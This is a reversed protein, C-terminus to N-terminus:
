SLDPIAHESGEQDTLRWSIDCDWWWGALRWVWCSVALAPWHCGRSFRLFVKRWLAPPTRIWGLNLILSFIASALFAISLPTWGRVRILRLSAGLLVVALIALLSAEVPIQVNLILNRYLESQPTLVFGAILATLFAALAVISLVAGKEWRIVRRIQRFLLFGIGILGAVALLILGWELIYALVPSLRDQLFYGALVTLGTLSAIVIWLIKKM